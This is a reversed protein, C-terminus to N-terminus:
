PKLTFDIPSHFDYGASGSTKREPLKINGYIEEIVEITSEPFCNLWDKTFQEKSVKEFKAIRRM